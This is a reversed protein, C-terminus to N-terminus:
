RMWGFSVRLEVKSKIWDMIQETYYSTTLENIYFDINWMSNEDGVKFTKRSLEKANSQDSNKNSGASFDWEKCIVTVEKSTIEVTIVGGIAYEGIKFTKKTM